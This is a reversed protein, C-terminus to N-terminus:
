YWGTSQSHSWASCPTGYRDKIYGLGWEIQTKPNDRWDSGASAMKSGPLSQPIGYAGSSPNRAKYSWNSERTWLRDLCSFQSDGWGYDGIMARALDKAGAPTRARELDRSAAEARAKREAEAKAAAEAKAKARAEAEAKARAEAEARAAAEAAAAQAAAAAEAAAREQRKKEAVASLMAVTEDRDVEDATLDLQASTAVESTIVDASKPGISQSVAVSTGLSAVALAVGGGVVPLPLTRRRYRGRHRRQRSRRHAGGSRSL